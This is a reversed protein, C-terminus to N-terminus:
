LEQESLSLLFNHLIQGQISKNFHIEAIKKGAMGIRGSDIPNSLAKTMASAFSEVSGPEAFYVSIDDTLYDPIEGVSSACVPHGTALYEGLKTPFGGQAQHSDPRPLVLLDANMIINPIEDRTVAGKIFVKDQLNLEKIQQHHGPTDYHWFGFMYLKIQHFKTAIHGFAEILINVGDKGNNMTGIFAIYPQQLGPYIPYKRSPDFRDLDVTMPLHLLKTKPQVIEKYYKMLTRTMLAMGDLRPLINQDFYTSTKDAKRKQLINITNHNCNHIDPFESIEAFLIHKNLDKLRALAKYQSIDSGVWIVTKDKNRMFRRFRNKISISILPSLIYTNIRRHWITKDSVRSLYKYYIGNIEGIHHFTKFEADNQYGGTILVTIEAGLSKLGEILGRIRNSSASSVWFPNNAQFLFIRISINKL